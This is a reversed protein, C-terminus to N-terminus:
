AIGEDASEVFEVEANKLGARHMAFRLSALDDADMMIQGNCCTAPAVFTIAVGDDDPLRAIVTGRLVPYSM